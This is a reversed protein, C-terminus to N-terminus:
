GSVADISEPVIRIEALDVPKVIHSDFGSALIKVKNEVRRYATLAIM